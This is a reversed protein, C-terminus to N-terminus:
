FLGTQEKLLRAYQRSLPIETIDPDDLRIKYAGSFWPAVEAVHNLNVLYAKHVRAFQYPRLREELQKLTHRVLLTEEATTRCFVKKGQAELWLIDAYDVLVRTENERQGWLKTLTIAPSVATDLYGRLAAQQEEREEREALMQRIRVMTQALRQESFPKVIYDLAALEFARVAHADYATAFIILPPSPREMMAAAAALGNVGPMNIDLFVVDVPEQAVVNLAERGNAAEYYVANAELAELMYRLEGRAPKEDDAILIHM